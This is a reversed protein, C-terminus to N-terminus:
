SRKSSMGERVIKVLLELHVDAVQYFKDRDRESSERSDKALRTLTHTQQLMMPGILHAERDAISNISAIRADAVAGWDSQPSRDHNNEAIVLRGFLAALEALIVIRDM